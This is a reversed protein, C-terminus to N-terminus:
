REKSKPSEDGHLLESEITEKLKKLENIYRLFREMENMATIQALTIEDEIDEVTLDMPNQFPAGLMGNLQSGLGWLNARQGSRLKM